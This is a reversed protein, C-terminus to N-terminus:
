IYAAGLTSGAGVLGGMLEGQANLGANFQNTQNNLINGYTQGAYNLGQMYQSGPAMSSNLGATGAGTAAGYAATSAGALGRGLGVADLKRAYGIQEAQNRAGTMAGARSSALALANQNQMAMANGSGPGVGRRALNRSTMGEATGFARATDAAAQSAIRERNAEVDYEQAQAVLGREVPRFTEQQYNYYDQAQQMQQDQAALQQNAVREAIPKMDAYQEKAFKLQERGLAVSPGYDPAPQSKGGM